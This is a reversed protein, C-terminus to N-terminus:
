DAMAKLVSQWGTYPEREPSERGFNEPHEALWALAQTSLYDPGEQTTSGLDFKRGDATGEDCLGYYHAGKGDCDEPIQVLDLDTRQAFYLLALGEDLKPASRPGLLEKSARWFNLYDLAVDRQAVFASYWLSPRFLQQCGAARIVEALLEGVPKTPQKISRLGFELPWTQAARLPGYVVRPVMPLCDLYEPSLLFPYSEKQCWHQKYDAPLIGIFEGEPQLAQLDPEFYLTLRM